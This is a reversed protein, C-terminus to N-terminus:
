ETKGHCQDGYHRIVNKLKIKALKKIQEEAKEYAIEGAEAKAQLDAICHPCPKTEELHAGDVNQLIRIEAMTDPWTDLSKIREQQIVKKVATIERQRDALEIQRGELDLKEHELRVREQEADIAQQQKWAEQKTAQKKDWREDKYVKKTARRKKMKALWSKCAKVTARIIKFIRKIIAILLIFAVIGLIITIIMRTTQDANKPSVLNTGKELLILVQDFFTILSVSDTTAISNTDKSKAVMIEGRGEKTIGVFVVEAGLAELVKAQNEARVRALSSDRNKIYCGLVDIRVGPKVWDPGTIASMFFYQEEDDAWLAGATLLMAILLIMAKKM